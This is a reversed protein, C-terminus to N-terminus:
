RKRRRDGEQHRARYQGEAHEGTARRYRGCSASPEDGSGSHWTERGGHNGAGAQRVIEVEPRGPAGQPAHHEQVPFPRVHTSKRSEDAVIKSSLAANYARLGAFDFIQARKPVFTPPAASVLSAITLGSKM